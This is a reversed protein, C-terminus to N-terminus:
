PKSQQPKYVGPKKAAELAEVKPTLEAARKGAARAWKDTEALQTTLNKIAKGQAKITVARAQLKLELDAIRADRAALTEGFKKLMEEATAKFQAVIKDSVDEAKATKQVARDEDQNKEAPAEKQQRKYEKIEVLKAVKDVVSEDKSKIAQELYDLGTLGDEIKNGEDDIAGIAGYDQLLERFKEIECIRAVVQLEEVDMQEEESM